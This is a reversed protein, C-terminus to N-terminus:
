KPPIVPEHDLWTTPLLPPHEQRIHESVLKRVKEETDACWLTYKCMPCTGRWPRANLEELTAMIDDNLDVSCAQHGKAVFADRVIGSFECGILIKM